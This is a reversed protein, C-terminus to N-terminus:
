RGFALGIYIMLMDTRSRRAELQAQGETPFYDETLYKAEGGYLYRISLDLRTRHPARGLGLMVGAGGGASLALDSLNGIVDGTETCYTGSGTYVCSEEGEVSTTTWLYNFGVLGDAYPRLRGERKQVRVRGHLLVMNNSTSVEATLGPLGVLPVDRSEGGYSLYTSEVGLSVPSDGLGFDFQGSIGGAVDVNDAFEGVPVGIALGLGGQFVPRPAPVDQAPAPPSGTGVPDPPQGAAVAAALTLSALCIAVIPLTRHM